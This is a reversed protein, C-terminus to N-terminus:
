TLTISKNHVYNEENHFLKGCSDFQTSEIQYHTKVYFAKNSPIAQNTYNRTFTPDTRYDM